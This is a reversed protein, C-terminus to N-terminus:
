PLDEAHELGEPESNVIRQTPLQQNNESLATHCPSLTLSNVTVDLVPHSKLIKPCQCEPVTCLPISTEYAQRSLWQDNHLM